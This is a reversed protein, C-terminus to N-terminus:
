RRRAPCPLCPQFARLKFCGRASRTLLERWAPENSSSLLASAVFCPFPRATKHARPVAPSLCTRGFPLSPPAGPAPCAGEDAYAPRCGQVVARVPGASRNLPTDDDDNSFIHIRYDVPIIRSSTASSSM